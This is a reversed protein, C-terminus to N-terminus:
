SASSEVGGCMEAYDSAPMTTCNHSMWFQKVAENRKASGFDGRSISYKDSAGQCSGVCVPHSACIALPCRCHATSLSLSVSLSLSLCLSTPETSFPSLFACEFWQM